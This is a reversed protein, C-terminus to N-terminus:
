EDPRPWITQMGDIHENLGDKIHNWMPDLIFDIGSRRAMKAAPVFDSDGSILIIQDVDKQHSLSAIDLGIKIDVGKQTVIPRIHLPEIDEIRAKGRILKKTQIPNIVWSNQVSLEGLRLAVKRVSRLREHLENRFMSEPLKSYTERKHNIPNCITTDPPKSDYFFIRYLSQMPRNQIKLHALSAKLILRSMKEVSINKDNKLHRIRKIFFAGDILIATKPVISNILDPM